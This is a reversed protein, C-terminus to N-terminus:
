YRINQGRCHPIYLQIKDDILGHDINDFITAPVRLFKSLLCDYMLAVVSNIPIYPISIILSPQNHNAIAACGRGM